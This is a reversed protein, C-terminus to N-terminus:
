TEYETGSVDDSEAVYVFDLDKDRLIRVPQGSLVSEMGVAAGFSVRDGQEVSTAKPGRALVTGFM